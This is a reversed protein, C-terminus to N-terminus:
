KNFIFSEIASVNEIGTCNGFCRLVKWWYGPFFFRRRWHPRLMRKHQRVLPPSRHTVALVTTLLPLVHRRQYTLMPVSQQPLLRKSCAHLCAIRGTRHVDFTHKISLGGGHLGVKALVRRGSGRWWFIDLGTPHGLVRLKGGGGHFLAQDQAVTSSRRPRAARRGGDLEESQIHEGGCSVSLRAAHCLIIAAALCTVLAVCSSRHHSVARRAVLPAVRL